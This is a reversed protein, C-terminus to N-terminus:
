LERNEEIGQMGEVTEKIIKNYISNKEEIVVNHIESIGHKRKFDVRAFKNDELLDEKPLEEIKKSNEIYRKRYVEREEESFLLELLIEMKEQEPIEEKLNERLEILRFEEKSIQEKEEIEALRKSIEVIRGFLRINQIWVDPNITGNPMRFEITHKENSINYLNISSNRSSQALRIEIFFDELDEDSELNISGKEIAKNLKNSIPVAFRKVDKRPATKEENSILYIIREANGFIEFLNEYAEKNKLYNAGIHIHGGCFEDAEQGCRKLMECIMYIEEIDEKNDTMIPSVVEIGSVLSYDEKSSWLHEKKDTNRRLFQRLNNIEFSKKGESEIEIGITMTKDLGIKSIEMNPKLFYKKVKETDKLSMLILARNKEDKIKELAKLKEKDDKLSTIVIVKNHEDKIKSLQELKTKDNKISALIRSRVNEDKIYPLYEMKVNNNKISEIIEDQYSPDEFDEICLIRREEEYTMIIEEKYDESENFKLATILVEEDEIEKIILRSLLKDKIFYTIELRQQDNEIVLSSLVEFKDSRNKLLRLCEIKNDQSIFTEIIDKYYEEIEPYKIMEKIKNRDSKLSKVLIYKYDKDNFLEIAKIKIEDSEISKAVNVKKYNEEEYGKLYELKLEDENM